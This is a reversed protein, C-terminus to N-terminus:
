ATASAKQSAAGDDSLAPKQASPEVLGAAREAGKIGMGMVPIAAGTVYRALDSALFVVVNSVDEPELSYSTDVPPAAPGAYRASLKGVDRFDRVMDTLVWGPLVANVRIRRSALELALNKALGVLGHKAACYHAHMPASVVGNSSSTLVISGGGGAILYPIAAKAAYWSGYLNVDIMDNWSAESLEHSLGVSFIGANACVIDLRGLESVGDDLVQKLVTFDRVDATFTRIQRGTAEVEAATQALDAETAMPYPVSDVQGCIDVAIIDAGEQALRVAHSRGQGRAAGTVFAVKDQLLGTM